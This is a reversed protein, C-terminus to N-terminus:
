GRDRRARVLRRLRGQGEGRPRHRDAAREGPGRAVGHRRRPRPRGGQRDRRLRTGPRRHRRPARGAAVGPGTGTGPGEDPGPGSGPEAGAGAAGGPAGALDLARAAEELPAPRRHVMVIAVLAASLILAASLLLAVNIGAYFAGYAAHIVQTVIHGFTKQAKAVSSKSSLGGSTVSTIIFSQLNPPLGLKKLSAALHGTLQSDVVAGLCAVGIVAGLERSTNTVSAAMGSREPRVASLAASTAPVIAMGFGIGAVALTWAMTAFGVHPGIYADTLLLGAGGLLCGTAMPLRPGAKAVWFGTLASAAIMGVAMPLFEIVTKYASTSVIVELYLLVFFFIAFIGFFVAFAAWNAGTFSRNRFLGPSLVPSRVMREVRPFALIALIACVFALVVWWTTYGVAEGEIAAYTGVAIAGGGLALGALDLRRGEPDSTEPVTLAAAIIALVGFGLNFWFIGRWSSFGVIAGGIVPGLALATGSVAAWGGLARARARREPYLHRIVSLTGPESAAAGLGMIVRAGILVSSSPALAALISGACFIAVGSLMVSKRGFLDGLTGGTLMLAAFALAYGDVIWQLQSVGAHLSAYINAMAAAVITNDLFTLFLVACVTALAAQRGADHRHGFARFSTLGM